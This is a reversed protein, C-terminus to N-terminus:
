HGKSPSLLYSTWYDLGDLSYNVFIIQITHIFDCGIYKM